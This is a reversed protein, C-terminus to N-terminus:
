FLEIRSFLFIGLAAYGVIMVCLALAGEGADITLAGPISFSTTEEGMLLTQYGSIDNNPDLMQIYKVYTPMTHVAPAEGYSRVTGNFFEATSNSLALTYLGEPLDKLLTEGDTVNAQRLVSQTGNEIISATLNGHTGAYFNSVTIAIDNVYNKESTLYTGGYLSPAESAPEIVYAMPAPLRLVGSSLTENESTAIWAYTGNELLYTVGGLLMNQPQKQESTATDHLSIAVPAATSYLLERASFTVYTLNGSLTENLAGQSPQVGVAV